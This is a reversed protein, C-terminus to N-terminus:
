QLPYGACQLIDFADITETKIFAAYKASLESPLFNKGSLGPFSPQSLSIPIGKEQNLFALM